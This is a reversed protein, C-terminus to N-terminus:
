REIKYIVDLSQNKGSEAELRLKESLQYRVGLSFTQDFLGVIYRIFLKPTVYKGMWLASQDLGKDAKVTIEDIHFFHAIDSTMGEGNDMGLSSIAGILSYADAQSSESLKKGTLLMAMAQSDTAAPIAFVSSKPHQLTGGIELGAMGEDLVRTARIDLGPNDYPGQFILRGREIVLDQGYAKYNGKGVAAFGTVFTQRNEEKLINVKGLLQTDLGFGKFRVDDGLYLIVNTYFPISKKATNSALQQENQIVVVDSSVRTASSPLTKLAARAWPIETSGTLNIANANASLKLNPSLTATMQPQEIFRINAGYINSQWAWQPTGLNELDGRVMLTGDGSTVQAEVHVQGTRQANVQLSADRLVVGLKPLNASGNNISINGSVEPKEVTGAININASASGQVDNLFPLMSELPALDNLAASFKAQVKKDKLSYKGDANILGYPTWDMQLSTTLQDNKIVADLTGKKLAYTEAKGGQFQYLLQADRTRLHADMAISKGAPVSLNIDGDIAGSLVAESKLWSQLQNIPVSALTSEIKLGSTPNWQGQACLLPIDPAGAKTTLCLKGFDASKKAPQSNYQMQTASSLNWQSMKRLSLSLSKINGRWIENEWGSDLKLNANGLDPSEIQAELNHQALVGQGKITVASIYQGAAQVHAANLLMDYTQGDARPNLIVSLNNVAYDRWSFDSVQGKINIRPEAKKGTISGSSNISGRLGPDIQGLLPADIKWEINLEDSTKGKLSLQNAGIALNADSSSWYVGDYDVQGRASVALGRLEGQANINKLSLNLGNFTQDTKVSQYSGQVNVSATLDSPWDEVLQDLNFHETSVNLNWQWDKLGQVDGNFLVANSTEFINAVSHGTSHSPDAKTQLLLSLNEFHANIMSEKASYGAQSTGAIVVRHMDTNAQLNTSVRFKDLWGTLNVQGKTTVKAAGKITNKNAQSKQQQNEQMKFALYAAWEPPMDQEPWALSLNALPLSKPDRLAPSINATLKMSLPQLFSQELKLTKVNGGINLMGTFNITKAANENAEAKYNFQWDAKADLGYPYRLGMSGNLKIKGQNNAVLFDYARLHLTGLGLSGSVLAFPILTENQRIEIDRLNINELKVRVPQALSPWQYNEPEPENKSPPLSIRIKEASLSEINVSTYLLGSPQWRFSLKEGQVSVGQRQYSFSSVDLGSLLNGHLDGLKLDLNNAIKRVVWHSGMETSMLSSIFAILISLFLVIGILYKKFRSFSNLRPLKM